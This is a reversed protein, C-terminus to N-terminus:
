SRALTSPSPGPAMVPTMNSAVHYGKNTKWIRCNSQDKCLYRLRLEFLLDTFDGQNDRDITVIM